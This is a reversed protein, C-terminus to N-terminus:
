ENAIETMVRAIGSVVHTMREYDIKDPTDEATHYYKYRFMATDTVMFAPYGEKWFASHDSWGIGTMWGPAALGESPFATHKRFSAIARCLLSRSSLNSVFGIFKGTDPYFASFPFPYNQTKPIDSYAGITELSLMAVIKERRQHSRRAYVISGMLDTMFFPSEENVFAVFRVTRALRETKLLRAIELLAAVGSGNDNAGPSGMVSDYHAGILVIEEPIVSGKKEAEINRVSKGEAEFIQSFVNYGTDTFVKDIYNAAENLENYYWINREGITNGLMVTHNYLSDFIRNEKEALPHIVGSYSKGPMATFYIVAITLLILIAGMSSIFFFM